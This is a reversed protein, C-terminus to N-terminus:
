KDCEKVYWGNGQRCFSIHSQLCCPFQIFAERLATPSIVAHHQSQHVPLTASFIALMMLLIWALWEFNSGVVGHLFGIGAFGIRM